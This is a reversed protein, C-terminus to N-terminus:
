FIFCISTDLSHLPSGPLCSYQVTGLYASHTHPPTPRELTNNDSSLLHIQLLRKSNHDTPVSDPSKKFLPPHEPILYDSAPIAVLDYTVKYLLVLRSDIRRQDLTRWNLDQLMSSVSSTYQYDRTVWRAARRQVSELKNIDLDTHPSWVTSAYELQPRVLTKYATSKLDKNHVRINRKLFGLTQNAKKTINNIHESWKLDESITVGLYKASPVSELVCGHLHYKTQLPTKRRTVHIVQCKSPNFSMDWLKEWNELIELDKQLIESDAQKDLALYMATDDAFLRVRSRVQEPLDNIYALFLIPGLVSGQPVGSSM